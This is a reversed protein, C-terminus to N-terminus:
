SNKNSWLTKEVHAASGLIIIRCLAEILEASGVKQSRGPNPTEKGTVEKRM